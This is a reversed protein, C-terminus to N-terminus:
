QYTGGVLEVRYKKSLAPVRCTDAIQELTIATQSQKIVPEILM